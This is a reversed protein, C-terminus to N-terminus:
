NVIWSALMSSLRGEIEAMRDLHDRRFLASVRLKRAADGLFMECRPGSQIIGPQPADCVVYYQGGGRAKAAKLVYHRSTGNVPLPARTKRALISMALGFVLRRSGTMYRMM